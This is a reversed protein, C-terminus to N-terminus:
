KINAISYIVNSLGIGKQQYSTINISDDIM